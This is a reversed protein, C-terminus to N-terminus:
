ATIAADLHCPSRAMQHEKVIHTGIIKLEKEGSQEYFPRSREMAVRKFASERCATRNDILAVVGGGEAGLYTKTEHGYWYGDLM